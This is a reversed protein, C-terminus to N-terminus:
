RRPPDQSGVYVGGHRRALAKLDRERGWHGEDPALDPVVVWVEWGGRHGLQVVADHTATKLEARCDNARSEDPFRLIHATAEPLPDPESDYEDLAFRLRQNLNALAIAVQGASPPAAHQGQSVLGLRALSRAFTATLDEDLLGGRLSGELHALISILARVDNRRVPQRPEDPM